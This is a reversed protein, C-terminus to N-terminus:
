PIWVGVSDPAWWLGNEFQMGIRYYYVTNSIATTDSYYSPCYGTECGLTQITEWASVTDRRAIQLSDSYARNSWTLTISQDSYVTAGLNHPPFPERTTVRMTDSAASAGYENSATIWVSYATVPLYRTYFADFYGNNPFRLREIEGTVDRRIAVQFSDVNPSQPCWEITLRQQNSSEILTDALPAVPITAMDYNIRPVLRFPVTPSIYNTSDVTTLSVWFACDAEPHVNYSFGTGYNYIRISFQGRGPNQLITYQYFSANISTRLFVRAELIDEPIDTSVDAFFMTDSQYGWNCSYPNPNPNEIWENWIELVQHSAPYSIQISYPETTDPNSTSDEPYYNNYTNYIDDGEPVCGAAIVFVLVLLLLLIRM